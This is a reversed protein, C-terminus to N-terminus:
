KSKYAFRSKCFVTLLMVLYAAVYGIGLGALVDTPFHVGLYLRSFGVFCALFVMLLRVKPFYFSIMMGTLMTDRTHGSPYSTWHRLGEQVVHSVSNPLLFFPRTRFVLATDIAVIIREFIVCFLLSVVAWWFLKRKLIFVATLFSIYMVILYSPHPQFISLFNNDFVWIINNLWVVHPVYIALEYFYRDFPLTYVNKQLFFGILLSTVVLLIFGIIIRSLSLVPLSLDLDQM